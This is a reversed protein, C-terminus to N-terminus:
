AIAHLNTGVSGMTALKPVSDVLNTITQANNDLVKRLLVNQQDQAAAASKLGLAASVASEVAIDM